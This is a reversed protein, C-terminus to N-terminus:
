LLLDTALSFDLRKLAQATSAGLGGMQVMRDGRCSGSHTEYVLGKKETEVVQRRDPVATKISLAGGRHSSQLNDSAGM